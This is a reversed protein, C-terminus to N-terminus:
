KVTTKNLHRGAYLAHDVDTTTTIRKHTNITIFYVIMKRLDNINNKNNNKCILNNERANQKPRLFVQQKIIANRTKIKNNSKM